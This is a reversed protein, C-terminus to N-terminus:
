IPNKTKSSYAGLAMVKWEDSEAKFGLFQTLSAYFLGLSNPYEIESITEIKNKKAISITRHDERRNRRINTNCVRQFWKSLISWCCSM